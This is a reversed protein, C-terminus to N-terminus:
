IVDKPYLSYESIISEFIEKLTKDQCDSFEWRDWITVELGERLKVKPVERPEMMTVTPVALNMFANKMEEVKNEKLIKVLELTQLGSVAATTTALAPIIRGAKIKVTMWDMPDLTYNRSRLNAMSSIADIHYNTDDDKEFEEPQIREAKMHKSYETIKALLGEFDNKDLKQEEKPEEEQQTEEAEEGEKKEEEKTNEEQIMKAKEDSPVFEPLEIIGAFDRM